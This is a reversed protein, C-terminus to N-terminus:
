IVITKIILYYFTNYEQISYYYLLSNSLINVFVTLLRYQLVKVRCVGRFTIFYKTDRQIRYYSFYCITPVYILFYFTDVFIATRVVFLRFSNVCRSQRYTYYVEVYVYYVCM